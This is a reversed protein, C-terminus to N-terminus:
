VESFSLSGYDGLGADVLGAFRKEAVDSNYRTWRDIINWRLVYIVVAEFDFDHGAGLRGLQEWAVGLLLRELAVTDNQRLLKVGEGLWPYVQELRFTLENWNGAIHNVWRSFGWLEEKGPAPLGQQRRRLAAVITRLELRWIITDKVTGDELGDLLARARNCLEADTFGMPINRWQLLDEIRRLLLADEQELVGLRQDLKIRSLPPRKAAFLPGHFPLSSMLMVYKDLGTM